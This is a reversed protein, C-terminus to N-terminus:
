DLWIEDPSRARIGNHRVSAIRVDNTVVIGDANLALPTLRGAEVNRHLNRNFTTHPTSFSHRQPYEEEAIGNTNYAPVPSQMRPSGHSNLTHEDFQRLDIEDSASARTVSVTGNHGSRKTQLDDNSTHEASMVKDVASFSRQFRSSKKTGSKSSNRGISQFPGSSTSIEGRLLIRRTLTYTVANAWGGSMFFCGAFISYEPPVNHGAYTAMRISALPITFFTYVVPYALMARSAWVVRKANAQSAGVTQLNSQRLYTLLHLFIWIYILFSGFEVIFVWVYHLALRESDFQQPIWCQLM